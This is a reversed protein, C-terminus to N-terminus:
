DFLNKIIGCAERLVSRPSAYNMRLFGEGGFHGGDSLELGRSLLDKGPHEKGTKRFDMWLFYTGEPENIEITKLDGLNKMLFDRNKELYSLMQHLWPDCKAYAVEMATLTLINLDPILGESKSFFRGRLEDNPIVAFAGGLGSMAFSKSPSMFTITRQSIPEGLSALPIHKRKEYVIDAHVEDSCVLLDNEVCIEALRKIEEKSMARGLPNQPNCFLFLKLSKEKALESFKEFNFEWRGCTIQSDLTKLSRNANTVAAFIPPYVPLESIAEQNKDLFIRCCLNLGLVISPLYVIWHKEIKWNYLSYAREIVLDNLSDSINEYGLVQDARKILSDRIPPPLPFDSDGITLAITNKKKTWRSSNSVVRNNVKDFIEHL